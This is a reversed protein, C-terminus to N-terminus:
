LEGMRRGSVGIVLSCGVWGYEFLYKGLSSSRGAVSVEKGCMRWNKKRVKSADSCQWDDAAAHAHMDHLVIPMLM